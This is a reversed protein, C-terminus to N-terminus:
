KGCAESGRPPGDDSRQIIGLSMNDIVDDDGMEGFGVAVGALVHQFDAAVAANEHGALNQFGDELGPRSGGPGALEGLTSEKIAFHVERLRLGDHIDDRRLRRQCQARGIGLEGTAEALGDGVQAIGQQADEGVEFGVDIERLFLDVRLGAGDETAAHLFHLRTQLFKQGSGIGPFGAQEIDEEAEVAGDDAGGGAGRAIGYLLDDVQAAEGEAEDIGCAEAFCGVGDLLQADGAAIRRQKFGIDNQFDDIGALRGGGTDGDGGIGGAVSEEDEVLGVEPTVGVPLLRLAAGEGAEGAFADVGEALLEEVEEDAIGGTEGGVGDGYVGAVLGAEELGALM